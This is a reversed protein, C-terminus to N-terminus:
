TEMDFKELIAKLNLCREDNRPLRQTLLFDGTAAVSIPM